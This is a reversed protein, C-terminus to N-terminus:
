IGRRQREVKLRQQIERYVRDTIKKIDNAKLEANKLGALQMKVDTNISANQLNDFVSNRSKSSLSEKRFALDAGRASSWYSEFRKENAPKLERYKILSSQWNNIAYTNSEGSIKSRT